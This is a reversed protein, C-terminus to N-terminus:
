IEGMEKVVIVCGPQHVGSAYTKFALLTVV